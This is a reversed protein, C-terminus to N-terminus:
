LNSSMNLQSSVPNIKLAKGSQVRAALPSFQESVVQVLLSRSVTIDQQLAVSSSTLMTLSTTISLARWGLHKFFTFVCWSGTVHAEFLFAQIVDCVNVAQILWSSLCILCLFLFIKNNM